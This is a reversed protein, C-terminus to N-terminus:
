RLTTIENRRWEAEENFLPHVIVPGDDLLIDRLCV